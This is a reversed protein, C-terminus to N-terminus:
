PGTLRTLIPQAIILIGLQTGINAYVGAILDDIVIGYGYPKAQFQNAPPLKLIDFFRFAFFAIVGPAIASQWDPGFGLVIPQMWMLALAQGAVEDAVVQGPDKRGYNEEAWRGWIICVCTGVVATALLIFFIPWGRPDWGSLVLAVWLVVPPLSGWTGSAARIHGLGGATLCLDKIRDPM